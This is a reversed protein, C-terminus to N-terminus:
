NPHGPRYGRFTFRQFRRGPDAEAVYLNGHSDSALNHPRGMEGPGTGEGGFGDVVELDSRRLVWIRHQAGDAVYIFSQNPDHSFAVDFAGTGGERVVGEQVFGGDREFAQVRSNARDAVYVLGDHSGGVGHPLRFQRPLGNGPYDYADDPPAGYAGWHRIYEGSEADFVVVRRNGYGDAVFLENTEPDVHIDAPGGLLETHNSGGVGDFEGLTLVHEGSRTFKMIQHHISTAVWVYDNHDVFVGHPMLPWEPSPDISGWSQVIQGQPDIEILPPARVCCNPIDPDFAAEMDEDTIREPRHLVWVHDRSDVHIGTGPGIVWHAPFPRPWDPDAEFVPIGTGATEVQAAPAATTDDREPDPTEGTGCGLVLLPLWLPIRRAPKMMM